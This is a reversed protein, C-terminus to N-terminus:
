KYHLTIKGVPPTKRGLLTSIDFHQVESTSRRANKTHTPYGLSIPGPFSHRNRCRANASEFVAVTHHIDRSVILSMSEPLYDIRLGMNWFSITKDM